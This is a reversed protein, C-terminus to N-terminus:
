CHCIVWVNGCMNEVRDHYRSRTLSVDISEESEGVQKKGSSKMEDGEEVGFPSVLTNKSGCLMIGLSGIESKQSKWVAQRSSVTAVGILSFERRCQLM